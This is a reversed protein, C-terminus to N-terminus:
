ELEVAGSVRVPTQDSIVYIDEIAVRGEIEKALALTDGAAVRVTAIRYASGTGSGSWIEVTAASTALNTIILNRLYARMGPPIEYIKTATSATAIETDPITDIMRAM